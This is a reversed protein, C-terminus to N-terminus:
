VHSSAATRPNKEGRLMVEENRFYSFFLLYITVNLRIIKINPYFKYRTVVIATMTLIKCPERFFTTM